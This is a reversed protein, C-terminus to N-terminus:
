LQANTPSDPAVKSEPLALQRQAKALDPHARSEGPPLRDGQRFRSLGSVLEEPGRAPARTRGDVRGAM